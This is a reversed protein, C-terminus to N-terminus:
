VLARGGLWWRQTIIGIIITGIHHGFEFCWNIAVFYVLFGLIWVALIIILNKAIKIEGVLGSVNIRLSIQSRSSSRIKIITESSFFLNRDFMQGIFKEAFFIELSFFKTNFRGTCGLETSDPSGM